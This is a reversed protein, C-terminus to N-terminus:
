TQANQTEQKEQTKTVINYVDPRYMLTIQVTSLYGSLRCRPVVQFFYRSLVFVRLHSWSSPSYHGKRVAIAEHSYYILHRDIGTIYRLLLNETAEQISEMDCGSM